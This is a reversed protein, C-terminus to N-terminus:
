PADAFSRYSREPLAMVCGVGGVLSAAAIFGLYGFVAASSHLTANPGMVLDTAVAAILAGGFCGVCFGVSELAARKLGRGRLISVFFALGILISGMLFAFIGGFLPGM